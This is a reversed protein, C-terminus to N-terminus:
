AGEKLKLIQGPDNRLRVTLSHVRSVTSRLRGLLQTLDQATEDPSGYLRSRMAEASQLVAVVDYSAQGLDAGDAAILEVTERSHRILHELQGDLQENFNQQRLSSEIQQMITHFQPLAEALQNRILSSRTSELARRAAQLAGKSRLLQVITFGIGLAGLIFAIWDLFGFSVGPDVWQWNGIFM